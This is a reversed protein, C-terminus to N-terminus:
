GCGFRAPPTRCDPCCPMNVSYVTGCHLCVIGDYEDPTNPEVWQNQEREELEHLARLDYRGRHNRIVRKVELIGGSVFFIGAMVALAEGLFYVTSFGVAAMACVIGAAVLPLSPRENM